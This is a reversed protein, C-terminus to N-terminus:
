RRRNASVGNSQVGTHIMKRTHRNLQRLGPQEFRVKTSCTGPRVMGRPWRLAGSRAMSRWTPAVSAPRAPALSAALNAMGAVRLVRSRSSRAVGLMNSDIPQKRHPPQQQRGTQTAATPGFQFLEDSPVGWGLDGGPAAIYGDLTLNMAFILKRM